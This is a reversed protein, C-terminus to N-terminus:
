EAPHLAVLDKGEMMSVVESVFSAWATPYSSLSHQDDPCFRQRYIRYLNTVKIHDLYEQVIEFVAIELEQEDEIWSHATAM